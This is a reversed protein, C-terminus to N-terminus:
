FYILNPNYRFDDDLIIVKTDDKFFKRVNDNTLGILKTAPGYDISENFYLNTIKKIINQNEVIKKNYNM